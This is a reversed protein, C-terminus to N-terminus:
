GMGVATGKTTTETREMQCNFDTSDWDLDVATADADMARKM